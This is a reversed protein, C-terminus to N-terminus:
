NARFGGSMPALVELTDGDHLRSERSALQGNLGLTLRYSHDLGYLDLLDGATSGHALKIECTKKNGRFFFRALDAYPRVHVRIESGDVTGRNMTSTSTM